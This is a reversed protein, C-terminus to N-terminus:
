LEHSGTLKGASLLVIQQDSDISPLQDEIVNRIVAGSCSKFQFNRKSPDGLREDQNILYPYSHDYRRCNEDAIEDIERM